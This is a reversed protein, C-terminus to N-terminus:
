RLPGPQISLWGIHPNHLVFYCLVFKEGLAKTKGRMM